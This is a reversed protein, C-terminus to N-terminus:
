RASELRAAALVVDYPRASTACILDRGCLTRMRPRSFRHPMRAPRVASTGACCRAVHGELVCMNDVAAQADVAEAFEVFGFGRHTKEEDRKSPDLPIQLEVIDGFPSFSHYLVTENVELGFGGVQARGDALSRAHTLCACTSRRARAANARRWKAFRALRARRAARTRSTPPPPKRLHDLQLGSARRRSPPERTGREHGWRASRTEWPAPM